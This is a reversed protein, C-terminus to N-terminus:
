ALARYAYTIDFHKETRNFSLGLLMIRVNDKLFPEYYRMTEIQNLANEPTDNFKIEIVYMLKPLAIVLDIRGHSISQESVIQMGYANCVMHLLAHYFKEEKVHLQYPIHMFLRKLLAVADEINEHELAQELDSSVKEVTAIETRAFVAVLYKQMSQQVEANPYGLKYLQRAEDYETITLYGSQFMLAPLPTAGVDFSALIDRSARFTEPDFLRYENQRYEKELEIMLFKPTGTQFWFNDCQKKDLAHMLSFPNYIGSVGAGFSYGNYWKKIEKCVGEQAQRQKGAWQEIYDSFNHDVEEQSYGCIEAYLPDLTIIRLNNIGSFLGAKAFSSVGTIFAFDVYEDLGKIAAFFRYMTNRIEEARPIDHMAHLIPNDYEDILIAVKGFRNRLAQVVKHLTFEPSLGQLDVALKYANAIEQLAFCVAKDFSIADQIGFRSFDLMIMGHEHWTYDSSAIWLNDFLQRNNVLLEKLMSLLLSKGFRRPRSLFYRRGKTILNYAHQTKDVYLYNEKRLTSFTSLDLPLRQM